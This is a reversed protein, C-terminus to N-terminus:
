YQRSQLESTHEESRRGKDVLDACCCAIFRGPLFTAVSRLKTTASERPRSTNRANGVVPKKAILLDRGTGVQWLRGNRPQGIGQGLQAVKCRNRPELFILQRGRGHREAIGGKRIEANPM